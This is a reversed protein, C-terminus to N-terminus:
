HSLFSMSGHIKHCILFMRMKGNSFNSTITSAHIFCKFNADTFWKRQGRIENFLRVCVCVCLSIFHNRNFLWIFHKNLVDKLRDSKPNVAIDKRLYHSLSTPKTECLIVVTPKLENPFLNKTNNGCM